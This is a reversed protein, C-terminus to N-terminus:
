RLFAALSHVPVWNSRSPRAGPADLLGWNQRVHRVNINEHLVEDTGMLAWWSINSSRGHVNLSPGQDMSNEMFTWSCGHRIFTRSSNRIPHTDHTSMFCLRRSQEYDGFSITDFMQFWFGWIFLFKGVRANKASVFLSLPTWLREYFMCTGHIPMWSGYSPWIRQRLKMSWTMYVGGFMWLREHFPKKTAIRTPTLWLELISYWGSFGIFSVWSQCRLHANVATKSAYSLLTGPDILATTCEESLARLLTHLSKRADIQM